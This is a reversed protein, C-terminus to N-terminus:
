LWIEADGDKERVRYVKAKSCAVDIAAGNKPDFKYFHLPCLAYKGDVLPGDTIRGGEHPCRADLAHLQGEVRCFVVQRGTGALVDGVDVLKAHGDELRHTGKVLAPKRGFRFLKGLM